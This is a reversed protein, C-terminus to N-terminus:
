VSSSVTSYPESVSAGPALTLVEPGDETIAITHEVHASPQGDVTVVTWGDALVKTHHSGLNVMPEVAFVYGSKIKTGLGPRGYNPIQPDEHMRRGIGHGVYDRVISYGNAEAHEQVAWGIDGLHKGPRCQEIARELCQETIRILKLRDENVKGVPVTTATDGVFGELTVGVDISFIDGDKLRYNSPFGHVIQENVSACISYPFGNYGKFTPLAGADRIMKEAARDIELTTAGPEVLTRLHALVQGVLHGAARMKELERKSKGIIM